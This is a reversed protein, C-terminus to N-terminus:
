LVPLISKDLVSKRYVELEKDDFIKRIFDATRYDETECLLVERTWETSEQNELSLDYIALDWADYDITDKMNELIDQNFICADITDSRIATPLSSYHMHVISYQNEPFIKRTILAYDPSKPDFGVRRINEKSIGKKTLISFGTLYSQDALELAVTLKDAYQHQLQSAAIKSSLVFDLKGALLGQIRREAGQVYAITVAEKASLYLATSTAILPKTQPIGSAGLFHNWGSLALLVEPNKERLYAGSVGKGSLVAGESRRINAIANQVTGRSVSFRKIYEEITPIKSDVEMLNFDRAICSTVKTKLNLNRSQKDLKM